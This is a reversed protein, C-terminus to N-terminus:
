DLVAQYESQNPTNWYLTLILCQASKFQLFSACINTYIGAGIESVVFRASIDAVIRNRPSISRTLYKPESRM